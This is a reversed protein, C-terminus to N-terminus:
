LSYVGVSSSASAAATGGNGLTLRDKKKETRYGWTCSSSGGSAGGGDWNDVEQIYYSTSGVRVFQTDREREGKEHLTESNKPQIINLSRLSDVM